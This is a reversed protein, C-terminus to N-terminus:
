ENANDTDGVTEAQDDKVTALKRAREMISLLSKYDEQISRNVEQTEKMERELTANTARLTEVEQRLCENDHRLHEYYQAQSRFKQLYGIVDEMTIVPAGTAIEKAPGQQDPKQKLKKRQNKALVIESEYRKRVVSNWRFGCASATRALKEGVEEFATLQTGGERIHRLVVDALTIDEEQNWADQRAIAM